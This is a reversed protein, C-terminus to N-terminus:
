GGASRAAVTPEDALVAAVCEYAHRHGPGSPEACALSAACREDFARAPVDPEFSVPPLVAMVRRDRHIREAGDRIHDANM